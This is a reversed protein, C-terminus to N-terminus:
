GRLTESKLRFPKDWAGIHMAIYHGVCFFDSQIDSHNYNKLNLAGKIAEWIPLTKSFSEELYYYNLQIHNLGQYNRVTEIGKSRYSELIEEFPDFDAEWLTFVITSSNRVSLSYKWTQPVIKKLLAGIAKKKDQNMYAM